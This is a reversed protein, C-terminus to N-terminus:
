STLLRLLPVCSKEQAVWIACKPKGPIPHRDPDDSAPAFHISKGRTELPMKVAVADPPYHDQDLVVSFSDHLAIAIVQKGHVFVRDVIKALLKAQAEAPKDATQCDQWYTQFNSLLNAAEVLDDYNLPWLSEIERQLQSRKAVYEEAALFGKEWSFDIREVRERVLAIRQLAPDNDSNQWIAQEIREGLGAPIILQSLADVVQEDVLETYISRQECPPYGRDRAVCHYRARNVRANWKARMKGYNKDALSIPKRQSCCACFVRGSLIYTRTKQPRHRTQALKRRVAQCADFLADSIFGEHKGEFWERRKRNSQKGQGLSGSYSTEAYPVRGTYVRNQLMDRVMEKGIPQKGARLEQIEKRSNMWDAIMQDTYNGTAYKRFARRVIAALRIHIYLGAPLEITAEALTVLIYGLPAVSGNFEGNLARQRKGRKTENSLNKSYFAAFVALMQEMLATYPSDNEDESFGEVCYLKLGYEHRLLIKIMVAHDHNRALRDFKWFMIAEFKGHEAARCLQKFGERELSWGSKAGDRFMQVVVGGREVIARQCHEEQAELSLENQL